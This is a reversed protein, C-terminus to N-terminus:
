KGLAESIIENFTVNRRKTRAIKKVLLRELKEHTKKSVRVMQTEIM